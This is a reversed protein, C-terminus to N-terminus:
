AGAGNAAADAEAAAILAMAHVDSAEGAATGVRVIIPWKGLDVGSLEVQSQIRSQLMTPDPRLGVGVVLVASSYWRSVLDADRVVDQVSSALAKMVADGYDRGYERIARDLEPVDMYMVCMTQNLRQATSVFVPLISDIGSHSLLGTLPDTTALRQSLMEAAELADISTLRLRLLVAGVALAAVGLLLWGAPEPQDISYITFVAAAMLLVATVLYPRWSVLPVPFATMLILLFALAVTNHDDTLPSALYVATVVTTAAWCWSIAAPGMHVRSLVQALALLAVGLAVGVVHPALSGSVNVVFLLVNIVVLLGGLWATALPVDNRVMATRLDETIQDHVERLEPPPAGPLRRWRGAPLHAAIARLREQRPWPMMKSLTLGMYIITNFAVFAAFVQFWTSNLVGEPLLIGDALMTM